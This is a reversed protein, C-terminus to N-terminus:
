NRQETQFDRKEAGAWAERIGVRAPGSLSARQAQAGRKPKDKIPGLVDDSQIHSPPKRRRESVQTRKRDQQGDPDRNEECDAEHRQLM